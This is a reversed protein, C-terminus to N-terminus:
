SHYNTEGPVATDPLVGGVDPGSFGRELVWARGLGESLGDGDGRHINFFFFRLFKTKFHAKAIWQRSKEKPLPRKKKKHKASILRLAYKPIPPRRSARGQRGQEHQFQHSTKIRGLDVVSDWGVVRFMFGYVVSSGLSFQKDRRSPCRSWCM